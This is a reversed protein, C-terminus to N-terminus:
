RRLNLEWYADWIMLRIIVVIRARLRFIRYLPSLVVIFSRPCFPFSLDGECIESLASKEQKETIYGTLPFM